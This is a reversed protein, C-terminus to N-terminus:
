KTRLTYQTKRFKDVKKEWKVGKKGNELPIVMKKYSRELRKRADLEEYTYWSDVASACIHSYEEGNSNYAVRPVNSKNERQELVIKYDKNKVLIWDVYFCFAEFVAQLFQRDDSFDYKELMRHYIDRYFSVYEKRNIDSHEPDVIFKMFDEIFNRSNFMVESHFSFVNSKDESVDNSRDPVRNFYSIFDPFSMSEVFTDSWSPSNTCICTLYGRLKAAHSLSMGGVRELLVGVEGKAVNQPRPMCDFASGIESACNVAGAYRGVSSVRQEDEEIRNKKCNKRTMLLKRRNFSKLYIYEQVQKVDSPKWGDKKNLLSFVDDEMGKGIYKTLYWKLNDGKAAQLNFVESNVTRRVMDFLSGKRINQQNHYYKLEPFRNHPFFLMMHIHPYGKATSELTAIYEADYHKRLNETVRYVEEKLYNEWAFARSGYKRVDCTLTLFFCDKGEARKQEVFDLIKGRQLKNYRKTGKANSEYWAVKNERNVSQLMMLSCSCIKLAKKLEDENLNREQLIDRVFQLKDYTKNHNIEKQFFSQDYYLKNAILKETKAAEKFVSKLTYNGGGNHHWVPLFSTFKQMFNLFSQINVKKEEKSYVSMSM